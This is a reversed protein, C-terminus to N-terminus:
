QREDVAEAAAYGAVPAAAAAAAEGGLPLVDGSYCPHEVALEAAVFSDVASAPHEDAVPFERRYCERSNSAVEDPVVSAVLTSAEPCALRSLRCYGAVLVAAVAAGKPM